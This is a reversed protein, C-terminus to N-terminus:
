EKDKITIQMRHHIDLDEDNCHFGYIKAKLM